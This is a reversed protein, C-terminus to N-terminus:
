YGPCWASVCKYSRIICRIVFSSHACFGPLLRPQLNHERQLSDVSLRYSSSLETVLVHPACRQHRCSFPTWVKTLSSQRCKSRHKFALCAQHLAAFYSLDLLCYLRRARGHFSCFIALLEAHMHRNLSRDNYRLEFPVGLQTKRVLPLGALSHMPPM